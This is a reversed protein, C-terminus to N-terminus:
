FSQTRCMGADQFSGSIVEKSCDGSVCFRGVGSRWFAGTDREILLSTAALGNHNVAVIYLDDLHTMAYVSGAWTITRTSYDVSLEGVWTNGDNPRCFLTSTEASLGSASFYLLFLSAKLVKNTKQM